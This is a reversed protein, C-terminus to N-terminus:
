LFLFNTVGNVVIRSPFVEVLNFLGEHHELGTDLV